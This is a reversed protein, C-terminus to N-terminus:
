NRDEEVFPADNNFQKIPIFVGNDIGILLYKALKPFIRYMKSKSLPATRSYKGGTIYIKRYVGFYIEESAKDGFSFIIRMIRGYMMQVFVDYYEDCVEITQIFGDDSYHPEFRPGPLKFLELQKM